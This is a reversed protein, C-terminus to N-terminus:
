RAYYAPTDWDDVLLLADDVLTISDALLQIDGCKVNGHAKFTLRLIPGSEVGTTNTLIFGGEGDTFQQILVVFGNLGEAVLNSLKEEDYLLGGLNVQIAALGGNPMCSVSIRVSGQGNEIIPEGFYLKPVPTSEFWPGFCGVLTSALLIMLWAVSGKRDATRRRQGM